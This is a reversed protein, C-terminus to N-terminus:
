KAQEKAEKNVRAILVVLMENDLSSHRGFAVGDVFVDCKRWNITFFGRYRTIQNYILM